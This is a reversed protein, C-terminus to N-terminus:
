FLKVWKGGEWEWITKIWCGQSIDGRLVQDLAQPYSAAHIIDEGDAFVFKFKRLQPTDM